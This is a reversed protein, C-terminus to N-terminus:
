GGLLGLLTRGVVKRAAAPALRQCRRLRDWAEWSAAADIADLLEKRGRGARQLERSFTADLLDRLRRESAAVAEAIEANRSVIPVLAQRVPGVAEFVKARQQVTREVREDLSATSPVEHVEAWHRHAQVEIALRYLADMDAFHHFVLRVSVGAREAVAKATPSHDGEAVLEILAEAVRQRTREGRTRPTEGPQLM